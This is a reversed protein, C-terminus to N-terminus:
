KIMVTFELRSIVIKYEFNKVTGEYSDPVIHRSCLFAVFAQLKGREWLRNHTACPRNVGWILKVQVSSWIGRM